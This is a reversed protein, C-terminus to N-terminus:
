EPIYQYKDHIDYFVLNFYKFFYKEFLFNVTVSGYFNVKLILSTLSFFFLVLMLRTFFNGHRFFLFPSTVLYRWRFIKKFNKLGNSDILSVVFLLSLSFCVIFFGFFDNFIRFSLNPKEYCYKFANFIIKKHSDPNIEAFYMEGAIRYFNHISAVTELPLFTEVQIIKRFAEDFSIAFYEGLSGKEKFFFKSLLGFLLFAIVSSAFFNDIKLPEENEEESQDIEKNESKEHFDNLDEHNNIEEENKKIIEKNEEKNDIEKEKEKKENILSNNENNNLIEGFLLDKEKEPFDNLDEHNNIEEENKKIIEKNEEKNDIEKEKEKKEKDKKENKLLNNEQNNKKNNRLFFHYSFLTTIILLFISIINIIKESM